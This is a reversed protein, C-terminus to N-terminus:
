AIEPFPKAGSTAGQFAAGGGVGAGPSGMGGGIMSASRGIGGVIAGAAGMYGASQANSGRFEELRASNESQTAGAEHQWQALEGKWEGEQVTAALLEVPTGDELSFGRAALQARQRGMVGETEQDIRKKAMRGLRKQAEARDRLARANADAANKAANGQQIAMVASMTASVMTVAVMVAMMAPAMM